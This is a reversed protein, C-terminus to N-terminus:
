PRPSLRPCLTPPGVRDTERRRHSARSPQVNLCNIGRQLSDARRAVLMHVSRRLSRAGERWDVHVGSMDSADLTFTAVPLAPGGANAQALGAECRTYQSHRSTLADAAHLAIDAAAKRWVRARIFL